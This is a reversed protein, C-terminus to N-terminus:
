KTKFTTNDDNNFNTCFDTKKQTKKEFITKDVIFDMKKKNIKQNYNKQPM